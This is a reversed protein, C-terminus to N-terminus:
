LLLMQQFSFILSIKIRNHWSSLFDNGQWPYHSMKKHYCSLKDPSSEDRSRFHTGPEHDCPISTKEMIVPFLATIRHYCFSKKTIELYCISFFSPLSWRQGQSRYKWADQWLCQWWDHSKLRGEFRMKTLHLNCCGKDDGGAWRLMLVSRREIRRMLLNLMNFRLLSIKFVFVACIALCCLDEGSFLMNWDCSGGARSQRWLAIM